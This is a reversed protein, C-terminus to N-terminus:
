RLEDIETAEIHMGRVDPVKKYVIGKIKLKKTTDTYDKIKQEIDKKATTIGIRDDNDLLIYDKELEADYRISGIIETQEIKPDRIFVQTNNDFEIDKITVKFKRYCDCRTYENTEAFDVFIISGSKSIIPDYIHVSCNQKKYQEYTLIKNKTNIYPKISSNKNLLSSDSVCESVEIKIRKEEVYYETKNVNPTYSLNNSNNNCSLLSIIIFSLTLLYKYKM